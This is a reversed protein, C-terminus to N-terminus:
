SQAEPSVVICNSKKSLKECAQIAADRSLGTLRARFLTSKGQRVSGVVPRISALTIRAQGKAAEAAVRAQSPSAYAGVQIAWNGAVPGGSHVPMTDAVARSILHFGHGGKAAPEPPPPAMPPPVPLLEAVQIDGRTWGARGNNALAVGGGGSRPYRPGPPIDIPLRNMAYQQADSLRRPSVGAINPGISAV